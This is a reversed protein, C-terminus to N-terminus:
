DCVGSSYGCERCVLCTGAQEGRHGCVPCARGRVTGATGQAAGGSARQYDLALRKAAYDVHSSAFRVDPDDTVGAPLFKRGELANVIDSVPVGRRVAATAVASLAGALGDEASGPDGVSLKIEDLRDSESRWFALEGDEGGIRYRISTGDRRVAGSVAGNSGAVSLPQADKCGDRYVSVAKLDLEWAKIYVDEIESASVDSDLNVTKSIGGCVFPQMAAMMRLHGDSSISNHGLACSFVEEHGAELGPAGAVSGTQEVWREIGDRETAGYGLAKLGDPVSRNVISLVAGEATLKEKSLALEPEIGTTDCDMMISITGTPAIATLQSNRM